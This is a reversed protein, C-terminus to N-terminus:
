DTASSMYNHHQYWSLRKVTVNRVEEEDRNLCHLAVNLSDNLLETGFVSSLRDGDSYSTADDMELGFRETLLDM